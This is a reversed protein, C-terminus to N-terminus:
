LEKDVDLHNGDQSVYGAEIDCKELAADWLQGLAAAWAENDPTNRLDHEHQILSARFHNDFCDGDEAYRRYFYISKGAESLEERLTQIENHARCIEDRLGQVDQVAQRLVRARLRGPDTNRLVQQIATQVDLRGDILNITIKSDRIWCSVAQKSVGLLRAFEAPLIRVRLLDPHDALLPLSQTVNKPTTKAQDDM